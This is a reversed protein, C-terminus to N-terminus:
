YAIITINECGVPIQCNPAIADITPMCNIYQPCNVSGQGPNIMEPITSSPNTITTDTTSTSTTALDNNDNIKQKLDEIFEAQNAQKDSDSSASVTATTTTTASLDSQKNIQDKISDLTKSFDSTIEALSQSSGGSALKNANWSSKLNIAWIALVAFVLILFAALQWLSKNNIPEAM